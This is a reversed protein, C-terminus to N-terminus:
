AAFSLPNPSWQKGNYLIQMVSLEVTRMIGDPGQSQGADLNRIRAFRLEDQIVDIGSGDETYSVNIPFRVSGFGDGLMNLLEYLEAMYMSISASHDIEGRTEAIAEEHTGYLKTGEQKTAYKIEKIGKFPINKIKAEVSSWSHRFGNVIPYAPLAM